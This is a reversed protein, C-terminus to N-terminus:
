AAEPTAVEVEAEDVKVETAAVIEEVEVVKEDELGNTSGAGALMVRFDNLSIKGDKDSDGTEVM